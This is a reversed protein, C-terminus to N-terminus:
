DVLHAAEDIEQNIGKLSVKGTTDPITRSEPNMRQAQQQMAFRNLVQEQQPSVQTRRMAEMRQIALQQRMARRFGYVGGWQQYRPDYSGIPRGRRGTKVGKLAHPRMIERGYTLGINRKAMASQVFSGLKTRPRYLGRYKALRGYAKRTQKEEHLKEFQEYENPPLYRKAFRLQQYSKREEKGAPKEQYQKPPKGSVEAVPSGQAQLKRRIWFPIKKVM